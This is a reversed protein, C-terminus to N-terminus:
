PKGALADKLARYADRPSGDQNTIGWYLQEQDPSWKPDPVYIVTMFAMWPWRERAYRFAGALYEGKQQETVAHWRYPSGARMDSTWGMELAAVKREADGNDEMIKRLDEVRRFSYARRLATPSPDNNNYTPDSAVAAPDMDPPARFGPAHVGLVDFAGKAGADYMEQLFVTDPRANASNETTPSLGASIVLAQPDAAKIVDRSAKLFAAYEAGSPAKRGWERNLNPENWIEYADIRGKYRTALARLFDTWDSLRDPPGDDPYIGVARSWGPHGDVRAVVKLGADDIEKMLRDPENWELQGKADREINRWEFRQKVWTFGGDKALRLDRATTDFNGWLFVHVAAEARDPARTSGPSCGITVIVLL